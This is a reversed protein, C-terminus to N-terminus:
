RLLEQRVGRSAQEGEGEVWGRRRGSSVQAPCFQVSPESPLSFSPQREMAQGSGLSDLARLVQIENATWGARHLGWRPCAPM